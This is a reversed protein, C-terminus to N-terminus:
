DIIIAMSKLEQWGSKDTLRIMFHYDGKSVNSPIPIDIKADYRKQGAPIAFDKNYVWANAADSNEKEEGDHHHECDTAQTGHSHHDFNNHAELNFSGLEVNDTMTYRFPITDGPHYVQCDIPCCTEDSVIVPKEMDKSDNDSSCSTISALGFAAMILFITKKM